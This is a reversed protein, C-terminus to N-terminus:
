EGFLSAARGWCIEELTSPEVPLTERKVLAPGIYSLPLHSGFILHSEGGTEIFEALDTMNEVTRHLGYHIEALSLDV